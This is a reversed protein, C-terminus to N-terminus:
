IEKKSIKRYKEDPNPRKLIRVLYRGPDKLFFKEITESYIRRAEDPEETPFMLLGKTNFKRGDIYERDMVVVLYKSVEVESAYDELGGM